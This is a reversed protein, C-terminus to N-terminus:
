AVCKKSLAFALSTKFVMPGAGKDHRCETSPAKSLFNLLWLGQGKEHSYRYMTNYCVKQCKIISM